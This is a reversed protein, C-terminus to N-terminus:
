ELKRINRLGEGLEFGVEYSDTTEKLTFGSRWLQEIFPLPLHNSSLRWTIQLALTGSKHEATKRKMFFLLEVLKM